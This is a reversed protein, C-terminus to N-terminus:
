APAGDPESGGNRVADEVAKTLRSLFGPESLDKASAGDAHIHVILQTPGGGGRAGGNDNGASAVMAAAGSRAASATSETEYGSAFAQGSEKGGKVFFAPPSHWGIADKFGTKLKEGISSGVTGVPDIAAKLGDVIAPGAGAAWDYLAKFALVTGLIALGIAGVVIVIPAFAALLFGGTMIAAIGLAVLAIKGVMIGTSLADIDTTIKPDGFTDRLAIRIKLYAIYLDLALLVMGQIAGKVVPLSMKVADVLGQGLVTVLKKVGEGTVTSPSILDGLEALGALLPELNIDKTLGGLNEKLKATITDLSIMKAANIKGFKAEVATRLAAAGDGLKVRGQALAAKAEGIGVNLNTALSSAVEDFSLGTGVLELPSLAMRGMLKSRDVIEKLKNGTEDGVAASAVSVANLTDVLTQGGLGSKTLSVALDNIAAKSTPVKRALEDVQNGLAKANDASGAVALRLLNASRAADASEIVFKGFAVAAAVGLAVIAVTAAVAAAAVAVLATGAVALGGETKGLFDSLGGLKDALGAAAPSASQLAGKFGDVNAKESKVASAELKKKLADQAAATKKAGATLQEYSTGAKLAELHLGALANKQEQIRDKLQKASAIDVVTAQNMRKYAGELGKLSSTSADLRERLKSMADAADDAVEPANGALDIRYTTGKEAM